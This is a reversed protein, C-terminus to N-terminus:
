EDIVCPVCSQYLGRIRKETKAAEERLVKIKETDRKGKAFSLEKIEARIKTLKEQEADMRGINAKYEELRHREIDNQATSELANALLSRNSVSSAQDRDSYRIDPNTGDFTGINDTASKIQEPYFAIYEDYGNYVGDYGQRILYERAKVGANNQGKYMNLTRYATAEDAPKQISLYYAGVHEGYGAADEEYPSFFAGQIDMNARGKSMDFATFDESTGHYVVLPNGNEDVVKSKGFWTKFQKTETQSIKKFNSKVPSGNESISHVFGNMSMFSNPLQLGEGRILQKAKKNDIYFISIKGNTENNIADMLLHNIANNREHASKIANVDMRIGNSKSEGNLYVPTVVSKGNKGKLDVIAVLSTAQQTKSAIIAIPNQLAEPLSELTDKGIYRDKHNPNYTIADEAHEKNLTMPLDNMGIDLFVRPTACVVLADRSPISRINNIQKSFNNIQEQVDDRASERVDGRTQSDADHMKEFNMHSVTGARTKGAETVAEAWLDRLKEAAKLTESM